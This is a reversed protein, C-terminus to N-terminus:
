SRGLCGRAADALLVAFSAKTPATGPGPDDNLERRVQGTRDIVFAVESHGVMAGGPETEAAIGYDKWVQRLRPLPGTLFLWNPVHNLHEERTFSRIYTQQYFVPNAAIAVLEVDSSASGLIQDAARFEQAILPCTSTCVPDLFTLLVVKGRLSALSVSRGRQDVLQFSKAPYNMPASSGSIALALITAANPSAQAAAMPAAGLVVVALAGASAVSGLTATAVSQRVAAPSLGKRWRAWGGAFAGTMADGSARVHAAPGAVPEPLRTLALYGGVVILLMPIMSNPDTGLGGFIGMDQVLVWDALSLVALAAIAPKLVQRRSTLLALGTIALVAVVFLNVARGHAEDFATFSNILASLSPPQSTQAMSQTMAALLGLNGQGGGQWFGRGPWAQLVAMGALFVGLLSLVARGLRPTRWAGDPLAILAGAASYLLAAGPAGFMWTLGPAFIGGFSEGFVWVVLGWGASALGAARSWLGAPAVLLWVGIGVQIWVAAAGAQIPHYSWSTGAWNVLHQVWAPSSAATPEIVQSPLGAAMAPQAQLLGDVLWLIGFGIRLLQRAAPEKARTLGPDGARGATEATPAPPWAKVTAWGLVLLGFILVAILGQHTLAARFAAVVTPDTANIGSNM